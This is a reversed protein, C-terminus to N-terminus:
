MPAVDAPRHRCPDIRPEWDCLDQLYPVLALAALHIGDVWWPRATDDAVPM